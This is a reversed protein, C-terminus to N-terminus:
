NGILKEYDMAKKLSQGQLNVENATCGQVSDIWEGTHGTGRKYKNERRGVIQGNQEYNRENKGRM